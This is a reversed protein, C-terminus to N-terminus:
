FRAALMVGVRDPALVPLVRVTPAALYVVTREHIVAGILGGWVLGAGGGALTGLFIKDGTSWDSESSSATLLAIDALAAGGLFGFLMGRKAQSPGRQWVQQVDAAPIDRMQGEVQLTLSVQSAQSFRGVVEEGSTKRVYIRDTPKVRSSLGGLSTISDPAVLAQEAPGKSPSATEAQRGDVTVSISVPSVRMLEAAGTHIARGSEPTDDLNAFPSTVAQAGLQRGMGVVLVLVVSIRSMTGRSVTRNQATEGITAPGIETSRALSRAECRDL